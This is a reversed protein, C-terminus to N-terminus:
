IFINTMAIFIIFAWLMLPMQANKIGHKNLDFFINVNFHLLSKKILRILKSSICVFPFLDGYFYFPIHLNKETSLNKKKKIEFIIRLNSPSSLSLYLQKQHKKRCIRLVFLQLWKNRNRISNRPRQTFILRSLFLPLSLIFSFFSILLLVTAM